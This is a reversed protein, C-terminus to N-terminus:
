NISNVHPAGLSDLQAKWANVFGEVILTPQSWSTLYALNAHALAALFSAPWIDPNATRCTESLLHASDIVQRWASELDADPGPAPDASPTSDSIVVPVTNMPAIMAHARRLRM